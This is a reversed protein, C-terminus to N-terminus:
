VECGVAALQTEVAPVSGPLLLKTPQAVPVVDMPLAGDDHKIHRGPQGVLIDGSPVSIEAPVVEAKAERRSCRRKICIENVQM